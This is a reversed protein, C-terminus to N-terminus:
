DSDRCLAHGNCHATRVAARGKDGVFESGSKDFDAPTGDGPKFSCREEVTFVSTLCSAVLRVDNRDAAIGGRGSCRLRRDQEVLEVHHAMEALRRVAHALGFIGPEALLIAADDLALLAGQQRAVFAPSREFQQEGGVLPEVGGIQQFFAEALEPVIAM